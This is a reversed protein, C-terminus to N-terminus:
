LTNIGYHVLAPLQYDYQIQDAANSSLNPAPAAPTADCVRRRQSFFGLVRRLGDAHRHHCIHWDNLMIPM